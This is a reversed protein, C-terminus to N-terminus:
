WEVGDAAVRELVANVRHRYTHGAMVHEFARKAVANRLATDRFQRVAEDVNSLDRMLPIYHAGALLVGNYEGELLLQCTMTGIPEFHRSSIAKGSVHRTRHRFCAAEVEAFEAGPHARLYTGVAQEIENDRELYYTGSEAGVIAHCRNLFRHWREAPERRFAIDVNLGLAGGEDRFYHLLRTREDDGIFHPYLDGRFGVDIDRELGLPCYREPNLAAPLHLVASATCSAYLWRAADPPLQSGIYDAATDIAFAIKERMLRYENGFFVLLRGRREGLRRSLLNLISVDDGTASHMVVILPASPIVRWAEAADRADVINLFRADLGPAARFAQLWDNVYSLAAYSNRDLLPALARTWRSLRNHRTVGALGGLTEVLMGRPGPVRRAYLVVARRDARSARVRAM